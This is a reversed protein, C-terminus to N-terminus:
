FSSLSEPNFDFQSLKFYLWGLLEFERMSPVNATCSHEQDATCNHEKDGRCM